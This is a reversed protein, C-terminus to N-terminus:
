TVKGNNVLLDLCLAMRDARLEITRLSLIRLGPIGTVKSCNSVPKKARKQRIDPQSCNCLTTPRTCSACPSCRSFRLCLQEWVAM